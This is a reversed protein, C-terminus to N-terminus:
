RPSEWLAERWRDAADSRRHARHGPGCSAPSKAVDAPRATGMADGWACPAGSGEVSEDMRTVRRSGWAEQGKHRACRRGPGTAAVAPNMRVVPTNKEGVAASQGALSVRNACVISGHRRTSGEGQQSPQWSQCGAPVPHKCSPSPPIVHTQFLGDVPPVMPCPGPPAAKSLPPASPRSARGM